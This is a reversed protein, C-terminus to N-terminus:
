APVCKGKVLRNNVEKEWMGTIFWTCGIGENSNCQGAFINEGGSKNWKLTPSQLSRKKMNKGRESDEFIM